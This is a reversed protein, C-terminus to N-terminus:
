VVSKRDTTKTLKNVTKSTIKRFPPDHRNERYTGVVDHGEDMKSVLRPIEEPPTQMDADITVVYDEKSVSFGAMIAMHQGFNGNLDILRIHENRESEALLLAFTGDRSGDNIFLIEWPRGLGDMVPLLRGILHPLAEEENYM